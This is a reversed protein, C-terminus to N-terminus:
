KSIMIIYSYGVGLGSGAEGSVFRLQPITMIIIYM